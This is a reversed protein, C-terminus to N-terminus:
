PPAAGPCYRSGYHLLLVGHQLRPPRRRRERTASRAPPDHTQVRRQRPSPVSVPIAGEEKEDTVMSVVDAAASARGKSRQVEPPLTPGGLTRGERELKRFSSLRSAVVPVFQRPSASGVTRRDGFADRCYKTGDRGRDEAVEAPLRGLWFVSRRPVRARRRHLRASRATSLPSRIKRV